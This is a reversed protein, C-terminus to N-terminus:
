FNEDDDKIRSIEQQLAVSIEDCEYTWLDPWLMDLEIQYTVDIKQDLKELAELFSNAKVTALIEGGRYDFNYEKM